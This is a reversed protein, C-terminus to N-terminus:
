RLVAGRLYSLIVLLSIGLPHLLARQVQLWPSTVSRVLDCGFGGVVIDDLVVGAHQIGLYSLTWVDPRTGLGQTLVHGFALGADRKPKVDTNEVHSGALRQLVRQDAEPVAVGGTIAVWRM